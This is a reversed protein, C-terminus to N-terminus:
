TSQLQSKGFSQIMVYCVDTWFLEKVYHDRGDVQGINLVNIWTETKRHNIYIKTLVNQIINQKLYIHRLM